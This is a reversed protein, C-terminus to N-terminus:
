HVEAADIGEGALARAVSGHELLFRLADALTQDSNGRFPHSVPSGGTRRALAVRGEFADPRAIVERELALSVGDPLTRSAKWSDLVAATLPFDAIPLTRRMKHGRAQDPQSSEPVYSVGGKSGPLVFRGDRALRALAEVKAKRASDSHDPYFGIWYGSGKDQRSPGATDPNAVTVARARGALIRALFQTPKEFVDMHPLILEMLRRVEAKTLRISSNGVLVFLPWGPTDAEDEADADEDDDPDAADRDEGGAEGGPTAEELRRELGAAMGLLREQVWTLRMCAALLKPPVPQGVDMAILRLENVVDELLDRPLDTGVPGDARPEDDVDAGIAPESWGMAERVADLGRRGLEDALTDLAAPVRPGLGVVVASGLLCTAKWCVDDWEIILRLGEIDLAPDEAAAERPGAAEQASAVAAPREGGGDPPRRRGEFVQSRLEASGHRDIEQLLAALAVTPVLGFAEIVETTEVRWCRAQWRGDALLRLRIVPGPDQPRGCAGNGDAIVGALSATARARTLKEGIERLTAEIRDLHDGRMAHTTM